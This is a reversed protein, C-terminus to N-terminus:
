ENNFVEEFNDKRFYHSGQCCHRVAKKRYLEWVEIDDITGSRVGFNKMADDFFKMTSRTFFHPNTEQTCYKLYSTTMKNIGKMPLKKQVM